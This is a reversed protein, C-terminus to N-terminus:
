SEGSVTTLLFPKMSEDESPDLPGVIVNAFFRGTPDPSEDISIWIKKNKIKDNITKMTDYVEGFVSFQIQHGLSNEEEEEEEEKKRVFPKLPVRLNMAAECLGAM